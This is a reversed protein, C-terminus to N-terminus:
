GEIAILANGPIPKYCIVGIQDNLSTCSSRYTYSCQSLETNTSRCYFRYHDTQKYYGYYGEYRTDTSLYLSSQHYFTHTYESLAAPYGLKKCILRANHCSWGDDCFGVWRSNNCYLALGDNIPGTNYPRYLKVDGNTCATTIEGLCLIVDLSYEDTQIEGRCGAGADKTHNCNNSGYSTHSCSSLKGNSGSCGLNSM